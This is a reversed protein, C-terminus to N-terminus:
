RFCIGPVGTVPAKGKAKTVAAAILKTTPEMAKAIVGAMAQSQQQMSVRSTAELMDGIDAGKPLTALMRKTPPNANEFALLKFMNQKAEETLDRQDSLAQPLRDMFHSYSETHGQRVSVFSPQPRNDPVAYFATRALQASLHHMQLPYNLQASIHGYAGSGTLMDPNMGYLVDNQDRPRSAEIQALRKWEREWVIYQSSSLLLQALNMSDTPSNPDATFIWDLMLRATDSQIGHEEVAKKAQQLIKWDHQEYRPGDANYVVPCAINGAVHWDRDILADRTVGSWRQGLRQPSVPSITPAYPLPATPSVNAVPATSNPLLLNNLQQVSQVRGQSAASAQMQNLGEEVQELMKEVRADLRQMADMLQKNLDAIAGVSEAGPPPPLADESDADSDPLPPLQPPVPEPLPLP